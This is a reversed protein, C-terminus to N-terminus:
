RARTLQWGIANSGDAMAIEVSMTDGELSYSIRQPFDHASNLFVVSNEGRESLTFATAGKGGPAAIYEVTKGDAPVLRMFEFSELTDGAGSRGTGIMMGGKADSWREETWRGDAENTWVGEMWALTHVGDAAEEADATGCACLLALSTCAVTFNKM